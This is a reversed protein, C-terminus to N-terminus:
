NQEDPVETPQPPSMDESNAAAEAASSLADRLRFEIRRNTERGAETENDALPRSEGYGQATIQSVLIRQGMLAQLVADARQQSLSLNMEESGQSDTHGGIEIPAHRCDKLVEALQEVVDLGDQSVTVSGPEFVIKTAALIANARTVCQEPSPLGAVPDLSEDYRVEIEFNQGAGLKEALLRAIRARAEADGTVGRVSLFAPQVVVVGQELEALAEIGALVRLPWGSPLETDIRMAAYVKSQGFRSQAYSASAGRALASNARGRLQVLGEPSLTATFEPPGVEADGADSGGLVAEPLVAQLSFVEPLDSDLEASVRDFLAQGVTEPAVLSVDADSFTLTGGGLAELARIGREVARGWDPTPVGLGLTCDGDDALGATRAAQLIRTRAAPTDASCADFRLVGDELSARLIFPTIVPRPASIDLTLAVSGPADLRLRNELQRKQDATEAIATVWVQGPRVSIKSRPLADLAVLGLALAEKWGEPAPHDAFDLMDTVPTNGVATRVSAALSEDDARAPILGIMSVGSDNRLLELSYEPPAVPASPTVDMLDIIREADVASGALSLARFRTVEDPATGSLRLQLGDAEVKAWNYGEIKFVQRVEGATHTEIMSVAALAGMYSLGAACMTMAPAILKVPLRM